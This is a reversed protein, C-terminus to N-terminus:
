VIGRRSALTAMVRDVDPMQGIGGLNVAWPTEMVGTRAPDTDTYIAVLPVDLANALHTLGTDVGIVAAAHGLLGAAEKLSIRPAALAGPIAAALRQAREQERANGWPLVAYWGRTDRLRAALEIWRAEPWEKSARSTAHLLTIYAGDPLWSLREGPKIGFRAAGGPVYGFVAAFLARNRAVASQDKAVACRRNYFLSALPERASHWDYGAVPAAAMRAPIASKILGQSDIVLDWRTAHLRTHLAKIERWTQGCFLRKRWRRWALPIVEGVAPHLAAIDVFPEEALWCLNLNHYHAVLETLAPWTHILDGMSSTRVILVNMM